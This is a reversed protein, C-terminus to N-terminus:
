SHHRGGRGNRCGHGRGSGQSTGHYCNGNSYNDCVGDNDEDIYHHTDCIGDGDADVYDHGYCSYGSHCYRTESAYAPVAMSLVTLCVLGTAIIKKM